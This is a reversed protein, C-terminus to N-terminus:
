NGFDVTPSKEVGPDGQFLTATKFGFMGAVLNTPFSQVKVNHNKAIENYDNRATNIRNETGELQVMLDQYAQTSKIDPYNEAVAILRSLSSSLGSQANQFAQLQEPTADAPLTVQTAKARADVVATLTDQEFSSSGKVTAVLNPILDSRRQYASQLDATAKNVSERSAVLGNYVGGMIMAILLLVGLVIAPVTWKGLKNM